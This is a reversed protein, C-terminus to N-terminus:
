LNFENKLKIYHNYLIQHKYKTLKKTKLTRLINALEQLLEIKNM